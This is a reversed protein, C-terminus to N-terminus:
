VGSRLTITDWETLTASQAPYVVTTSSAEEVIAPGQITQDVPLKTRDYVRCLTVGAEKFFVERETAM